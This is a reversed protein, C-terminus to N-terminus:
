DKEKVGDRTERFHTAQKITRDQGTDPAEYTREEVDVLLEKGVFDQTDHEKSPDLGLARIFEGLIPQGAESLYFRQEVFGEDNELRVNLFPVGQYESRNADDVSTVRVHAPGVPLFPRETTQITM